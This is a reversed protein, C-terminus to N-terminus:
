LKYIQRLDLLVSKSDVNGLGLQKTDITESDMQSVFGRLDNKIESPVDGNFVPDLILYLRFIDNKHKKIARSDTPEGQDMRKSLDLWARAKLPILHEPGLFSLGGLVKKGTMVFDYYSQNLLIASLSSVDEGIPIPTLHSDKPLTLADPIRSFLELMYPFGETEPRQFRYYERRAAGKEKLLYKGKEIFKWFAEGFDRDLAEACLVIDLDKTARFDLGAEDMALTCAIGGILVYHDTFDHFHDRFIDLGRVM